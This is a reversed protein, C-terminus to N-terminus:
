MSSELLNQKCKKTLMKDNLLKNLQNRSRWENTLTLHSLNETVEPFFDFGNGEKLNRKIKLLFHNTIDFDIKKEKKLIQNCKIFLRTSIWLLDTLSKGIQIELVDFLLLHNAIWIFYFGALIFPLDTWVKLM